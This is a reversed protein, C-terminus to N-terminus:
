MRPPKQQKLILVAGKSAAPSFVPCLPQRYLRRRLTSGAKADGAFSPIRPQQELWGESGTYRDKSNEGTASSDSSLETRGREGSSGRGSIEAEM